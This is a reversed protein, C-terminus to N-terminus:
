PRLLLTSAGNELLYTFKGRGERWIDGWTGSAMASYAASELPGSLTMKSLLPPNM